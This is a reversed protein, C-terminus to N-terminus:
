VPLTVKVHVPNGAPAEHVKLGPVSVRAPPAALDDISVMEVAAPL